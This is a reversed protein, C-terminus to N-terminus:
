AELASSSAGRAELMRQVEVWCNFHQKLISFSCPVPYWEHGPM